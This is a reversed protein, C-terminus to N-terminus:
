STVRERKPARSQAPGEAVSAAAPAPSPLTVRSGRKTRGFRFLALADNFPKIRSERTRLDYRPDLTVTEVRRALPMTAM